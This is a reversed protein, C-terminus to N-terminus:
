REEENEGEEYRQQKERWGQRETEVVRAEREGRM